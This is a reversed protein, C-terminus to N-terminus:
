IHCCHESLYVIRSPMVPIGASLASMGTCTMGFDVGVVIEPVWGDDAMALSLISGIRFLIPKVSVCSHTVNRHLHLFVGM